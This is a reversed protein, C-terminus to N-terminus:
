PVIVEIVAGGAYAGVQALVMGQVPVVARENVRWDDPPEWDDPLEYSTADMGAGLRELDIEMVCVFRM